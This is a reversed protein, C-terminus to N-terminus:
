PWTPAKDVNGRRSLTVCHVVERLAEVVGEVAPRSTRRKAAALVEDPANAVAVGIGAQKIMELDNFNDGIAMVSSNPVNWM